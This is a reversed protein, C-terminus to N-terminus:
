HLKERHCSNLTDAKYCMGRPLPEGPLRPELACVDEGRRPEHTMGRLRTPRQSRTGSQERDGQQDGGRRVGLHVVRFMGDDGQRGDLVPQVYRNKVKESDKLTKFAALCRTRPPQTPTPSARCGQGGVRTWKEDSEQHAGRSQWM